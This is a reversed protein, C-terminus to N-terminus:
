MHRQLQSGLDKSPITFFFTATNFRNIPNCWYAEQFNSLQIELAIILRCFIYAIQGNFKRDSTSWCIQEEM